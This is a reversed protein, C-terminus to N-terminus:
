PIPAYMSPRERASATTASAAKPQVVAFCTSPRGVGPSGETVILDASVRHSRILFGLNPSTGLSGSYTQTSSSLIGTVKVVRTRPLAAIMAAGSITALYPAGGPPPSILGRCPMGVAVSAAEGADLGHGGARPDLDLIADNGFLERTTVGM